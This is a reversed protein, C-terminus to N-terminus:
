NPSTMFLWGSSHSPHIAPTFRAPICLFSASLHKLGFDQMLNLMFFLILINIDFLIDTNVSIYDM